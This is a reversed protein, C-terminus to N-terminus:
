IKRHLIYGIIPSYLPIVYTCLVLYLWRRVSACHLLIGITTCENEIMIM